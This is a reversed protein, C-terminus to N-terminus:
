SLNIGTGNVVIPSVACRCNVHRPILGRAESITFIKGQLAECEPCVANDGATTYEAEIELGEITAEEYANISAEAHASVIETRALARARTIGIKEVRENIQRAIEAPGRGEGIGQALIRSIQQDMTKTIGDLDSYARTYILGLRDAHIPRFFSQQTWSEAISAGGKRMKGVADRVGKSYASDIYTNMWSARAASSMTAGQQVELIGDNQAQSLWSMFRDVKDAPREFSFARVPLVEADMIISVPLSDGIRQAKLGFADNQVISQNILTKLRNFRGVLNQEFKGRLTLTGTPDIRKADIVPISDNCCLCKSKLM